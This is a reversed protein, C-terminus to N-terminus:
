AGESRKKKIVTKDTGKIREAELKQAKSREFTEAIIKINPALREIAEIRERIKKFESGLKHAEHFNPLLKIMHQNVQSLSINLSHMREATHRIHERLEERNENDRREHENLHKEIEQRFTKFFKNAWVAFSFITSLVFLIATGLVTFPIILNGNDFAIERLANM